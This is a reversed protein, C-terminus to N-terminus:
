ASCPMVPCFKTSSGGFPKKWGRTLKTILQSFQLLPFLSAGTLWVAAAVAADNECQRSVAELIVARLLQRPADPYKNRLTKWNKTLLTEADALSSDTPPVEPNLGSLAFRVVDAKNKQLKTGLDKAATQLFGFKQEDDGIEHM